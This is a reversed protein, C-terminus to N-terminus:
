CLGFDVFPTNYETPLLTFSVSIIHYIVLAQKKESSVSQIFIHLVKVQGSGSTNSGVQVNLTRFVLLEL